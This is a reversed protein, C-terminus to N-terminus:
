LGLEMQSDDATLQRLYTVVAELERLSANNKLHNARTSIIAVNGPVYGLEPRIRDLSPARENRWGMKNVGWEWRCGFVPCVEPMVLDERTLEFPIGKNQARKQAIRLLHGIPDRAKDAVRVLANGNKGLRRRKERMWLKNKRRRDEPNALRWLRNWERNYAAKDYGPNEKRWQRMAAAIEPHRERWDRVEARHAASSKRKRELYKERHKIKDQRMWERNRAQKKALREPDNRIDDYVQAAQSPPRPFITLQDSM